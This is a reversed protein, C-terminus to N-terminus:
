KTEGQINTSLRWKVATDFDIESEKEILDTIAALETPGRGIHDGAEYGERVASWDMSRDPIPPHVHETIIRESM